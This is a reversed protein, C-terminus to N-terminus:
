LVDEPFFYYSWMVLYVFLVIAMCLWPNLLAPIASLSWMLAYFGYRGFAHGKKVFANRVKQPWDFRSSYDYCLIGALTTIVSTLLVLAIVTLISAKPERWLTLDHPVSDKEIAKDLLLALVGVTIAAQIAERALIGAIVSDDTRPKSGTQFFLYRVGFGQKWSQNKGSDGEHILGAWILLLALSICAAIYSNTWSGVPATAFIHDGFAGFGLLVLQAFIGALLWRRAYTSRPSSM